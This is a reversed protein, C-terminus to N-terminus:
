EKKPERDELLDALTVSEFFDSILRDLKQWMALSSCRDARPCPRSGEEVCPVPSLSGEVLRLIEGVTYEQPTRTLRYGGGKGRLSMLLGNEVLVKLISGLYEKSIEQREAIEQLPIYGETPHEALDAMVRLAYRGKTSITM